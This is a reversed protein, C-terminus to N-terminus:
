NKVAKIILDKSQTPIFDSLNLDGFHSIYNFGLAQLGSIFDESQHPHIRTSTLKFDSTNSKSFTLINFVIQEGIFDYFRIFYKDNGETISVIRRKDALIKKYNLVQILLQGNQKLINYCRKISDTFKDVSINAFTNGLSVVRDFQNNFDEPINDASYNYFEINVNMKQANAKAVKVMETSPDFASVKVGLLALAISDVGSGCGIDAASKIDDNVFSKLLTKKKEIANGFSIMEDYDAALEDYFTNNPLMKDM